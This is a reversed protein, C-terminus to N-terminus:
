LPHQVKPKSGMQYNILVIGAVLILATPLSVSVFWYLTGLTVDKNMNWLVKSFINQKWNDFTVGIALLFM